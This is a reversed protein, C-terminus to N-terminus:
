WFTYSYKDIMSVNSFEEPMKITKSKLLGNSYYNLVYNAKGERLVEIVNGAIDYIFHIKGVYKPAFGKNEIYTEQIGILEGNSNYIYLSIRKASKATDPGLFITSQVKKGRENYIYTTVFPLESSTEQVLKSGNYIKNFSAVYTKNLDYAINKREIQDGNKNYTFLYDNVKKGSSDFVTQKTLIGKNDFEFQFLSSKKNNIFTEVSVQKICHNQIFAKDYIGNFFADADNVQGFLTYTLFFCIITISARM